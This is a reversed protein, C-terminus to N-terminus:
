LEEDEFQQQRTRRGSQFPRVTDDGLGILRYRLAFEVGQTREDSVV